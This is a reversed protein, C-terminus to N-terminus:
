LYLKFWELTVKRATKLYKGTFIHGCEMTELSNKVGLKDLRNKFSVANCYPVGIDKTGHVLLTPIDASDAIWFPSAKKYVLTDASTKLPSGTCIEFVEHAAKISLQTSDIFNIPGSWSVCAKVKKDANMTYAYMLSIHGGASHGILGFSSSDIKFKESQASITDILHRVDNLIETYEIKRHRSAFRYNLSACAFGDDAYKMIESLFQGKNGLVWAGGHIFIIVHTNATSRDKPLVLDYINRRNEGYRLHNLFVKKNGTLQWEHWANM